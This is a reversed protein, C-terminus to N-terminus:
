SQKGYKKTINEDTWFTVGGFHKQDEDSLHAVDFIKDENGEAQNKEFDKLTIFAPKAIFLIGIINIIAMVGVGIDAIDWAMANSSLGFYLLAVIYLVKLVIIGKKRLANSYKSLLLELNSEAYYYLAM